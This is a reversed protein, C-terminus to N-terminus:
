DRRELEKPMTSGTSRRHEQPAPVVSMQGSPEFFAKEVEGLDRVRQLRLQMLLERLPITGAGVSDQLIRGNQVVLVPAGEVMYEMRPSWGTLVALCRHLLIVVTLVVLAHLLPVSTYFM